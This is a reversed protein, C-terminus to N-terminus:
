LFNIIWSVIDAEAVNLNSLMMSLVKETSPSNNCFFIFFFKETLDFYNRLISEYETFQSIESANHNKKEEGTVETTDEIPFTLPVTDLSHQRNVAVIVRNIASVYEDRSM